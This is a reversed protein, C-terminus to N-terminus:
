GTISKLESVIKEKDKMVRKIPGQIQEAMQMLNFSNAQNVKEVMDQPIGQSGMLAATLCGAFGAIGDCDRGYNVSGVMAKLADGKALYFMGLAVPVLELAHCGVSVKNEDIVGKFARSAKCLKEWGDEIIMEDYYEPIVDLPEKYKKAIQIAKEIQGAVKPSSYKKAVLIISDVTADLRFAEAVAAAIAMAAEKGEKWQSLSAVDFADLAANQPDCANIIGIPAIGLTATICIPLGEGVERAPCGSALKMFAITDLANTRNPAMDNLWTGALDYATIRGNKKIIAKVILNRLVTDDTYQYAVGQVRTLHIGRDPVLNNLVGYKEKIATYHWGEVPAGMADGIAAAALCGFTKDLLVDKRM